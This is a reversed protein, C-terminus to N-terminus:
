PVSIAFVKSLKKDIIMGGGTRRWLGERIVKSRPLAGHPNNEEDVVLLLEDSM